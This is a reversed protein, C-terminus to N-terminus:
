IAGKDKGQIVIEYVYILRRKKSARALGSVKRHRDGPFYLLDPDSAAKKPPFGLVNLPDGVVAEIFRDLWAEMDRRQVGHFRLEIEKQAAEAAGPAIEVLWLDPRKRWNM